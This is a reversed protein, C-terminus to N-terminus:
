SERRSQRQFTGGGEGRLNTLRAIGVSLQDRAFLWFLWAANQSCVEASQSAATPADRARGGGRERRRGGDFERGIGEGEVRECARWSELVGDRHREGDVHRQRLEHLVSAHARGIRDDDHRRLRLQTEHEVM